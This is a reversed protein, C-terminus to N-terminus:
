RRRELKKNGRKFFTVIDKWKLKRIIIDVVFLCVSIVMFVTTFDYFYTLSYSDDNKLELKGDESVNGNNTVMTYLKSSNMVEFRDYEAFYSVDLMYKDYYSVNGMSYSLEIVYKGIQNAEFSSVYNITDFIMTKNISTKDPYTITLNIVSNANISPAEVFVDASSGVFEFDFVFPSDIREVPTNEVKLNNLFLNFLDSTKWGALSEDNLPTAFTAVKGNGYKWYSYVSSEYVNGSQGKYEVLLVNVASSKVINFYYAGINSISDINKLIDNNKDKVIVETDEKIYSETLEDAVDKSVLEKIQNIDKAEYYVGGGRLAVDKLLAEGNYNQTGSVNITSITANISRLKDANEKVASENSMHPEGDSILYVVKGYNEYSKIMNYTQLLAEAIYTANKLEQAMIKEKIKEIDAAETVPSIISIEGDFGVVSVLDGPRALDLIMCSAQKAMEFEGLMMLSNSKDLVISILKNEMNSNGFTTPLMNSLKNLEEVEENNQIFTNGVTIMSKGFESVAMDINSLFQDVNNVNRVDLDELIFIDYDCLQEISYPITENQSSQRGTLYSDVNEGYNNKANLWAQGNDTVHLIKVESVINQTFLYENNFESYDDTSEIVLKYNFEGAVSTDLEVEVNNYGKDLSLPLEQLPETNDNVYLSLIAETKLNSEISVFALENSDKYTKRIFDVNSIQVEEVDSGLNNDLYIADIYINEKGLSDVLSVINSKNTEYGDTILVIRKIVDDTFLSATYELVQTINTASPDVTSDKVSKVKNGLETLVEYDAGFCIIGMKSNRPLNDELDDIYEDIKDLNLNSSYSCDALVYVNTETIVREYTTKAIVLTLLVCMVIHCVYSFVNHINFSDKKVAIFFPISVILVLPILLLLLYPNDFNINNM